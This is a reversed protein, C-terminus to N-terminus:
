SRGEAKPMPQTHPCDCQNLPVETLEVGPHADLWAWARACDCALGCDPCAHVRRRPRGHQVISPSTTM